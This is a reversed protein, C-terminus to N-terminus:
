SLYLHGILSRVQNNPLGFGRIATDQIFCNVDVFSTDLGSSNVEIAPGEEYDQVPTENIVEEDEQILLYDVLITSSESTDTEPTQICVKPGSIKGNQVQRGEDSAKLWCINQSLTWFRCEQRKECQLQCDKPSQINPIKNDPIGFGAFNLDPEFCSSQLIKYPQEKILEDKFTGNSEQTTADGIEETANSFLQGDCYKPGSVKGKM